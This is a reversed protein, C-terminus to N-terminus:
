SSDQADGRSYVGNKTRVAEPKSGAEEGLCSPRYTFNRFDISRIGGSQAVVAPSTGTVALLLVTTVTLLVAITMYRPM